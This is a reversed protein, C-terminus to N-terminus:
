EYEAFSVPGILYLGSEADEIVATTVGPCLNILYPVNKTDKKEERYKKVVYDIHFDTLNGYIKIINREPDLRSISTHLLKALLNMNYEM